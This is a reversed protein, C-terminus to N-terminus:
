VGSSWQSRKLPFFSLLLDKVGRKMVIMFGEFQKESKSQSKRSKSFIHNGSICAVVNMEGVQIVPAAEVLGHTCLQHFTLVCKGYTHIVDCVKM